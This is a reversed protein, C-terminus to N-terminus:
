EETEMKQYAELITEYIARAAAKLKEDDKLIKLDNQNSLYATEVLVVPMTARRVIHLDPRKIIGGSKTGLVKTLANLCLKALERSNFSEGVGQEANYMIETGNSRSQVTSNCHFSIFLDAEVGNALEVREPLTPYTDATRTYYAQITEDADLYEKLYLLLKLNISAETTRYNDAGAGMDHGGHGADIVVIRDYVEKPKTLSIIYCDKTEQLTALYYGNLMMSLEVAHGDEGEYSLISLQMLLDNSTVPVATEGEIPTVGLPTPTIEPEGWIYEGKVIRLVSMPQVMDGNAGSLVLRISHRLMDEELMCSVEGEPKKILICNNELLKSMEEKTEASLFNWVEWVEELDAHLNRQETNELAEPPTQWPSPTPQVAPTPETEDKPIGEQNGSGIGHAMAAIIILMMIAISYLATQKLFHEEKM